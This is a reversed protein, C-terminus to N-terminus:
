QKAFTSNLAHKLAHQKQIKSVSPLYMRFSDWHISKLDSVSSPEAFSLTCTCHNCVSTFLVKLLGVSAAHALRDQETPGDRCGERLCAAGRKIARKKGRTGTGQVLGCGVRKDRTRLCQPTSSPLPQAHQNIHHGPPFMEPPLLSASFALMYM